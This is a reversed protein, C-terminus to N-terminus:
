TRSMEILFCNLCVALFPVPSLILTLFNFEPTFPHEVHCKVANELELNFITIWPNGPSVNQRIELYRTIIVIQSM